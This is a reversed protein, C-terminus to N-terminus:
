IPKLSVHTNPMFLPKTFIISLLTRSANINAREKIPVIAKLILMGAMANKVRLTRSAEAKLTPSKVEDKKVALAINEIIVPLKASLNQRLTM